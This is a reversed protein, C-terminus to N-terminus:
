ATLGPAFHAYCLLVYCSMIERAEGQSPPLLQKMEIPPRIDNTPMTGCCRLSEIRFTFTTPGVSLNQTTKHEFTM